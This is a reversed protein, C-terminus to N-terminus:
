YPHCQMFRVSQTSGELPQLQLRSARLDPYEGLIECIPTTFEPGEVVDQAMGVLLTSRTSWVARQVGPLADVRLSILERQTQEDQAPAQPAAEPAPSAPTSGAIPAPARGAAPAAASTPTDVPALLLAVAIGALLALLWGLGIELLTRRRAHQAVAQHLGNPLLHEVLAWVAKGDLLELGQTRKRADGQVHGLTAIIGGGAGHFNVSGALEAVHGSDIRYKVGQKCSLLWLRDDRLLRLDSKQGSPSDAQPPASEFGQAHLAEVLFNSFERWRMGALTVLGQATEHQKRRVHWCYLTLATGLTVTVGLTILLSSATLM